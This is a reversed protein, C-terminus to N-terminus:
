KGSLSLVMTLHKYCHCTLILWRSLHKPSSCLLPGYLLHCSSYCALVPGSLTTGAGCQSVQAKGDTLIQITFHLGGQINPPNQQWHRLDMGAPHWDPRLAHWRATKCIKETKLMSQSTLTLSLQLSTNVTTQIVWTRSFCCCALRHKAHNQSLLTCHTQGWQWASLHCPSCLSSSSDM